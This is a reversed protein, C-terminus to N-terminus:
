ASKNELGSKFLEINPEEGLIDVWVKKGEKENRRRRERENRGEIM